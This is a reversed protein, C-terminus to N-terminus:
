YYYNDNNCCDFEEARAGRAIDREREDSTDLRRIFFLSLFFCHPACTCLYFYSLLFFFIRSRPFKKPWEEDTARSHSRATCDRSSCNTPERM